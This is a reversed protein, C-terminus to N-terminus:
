RGRKDGPVVESYSAHRKQDAYEKGKERLLRDRDRILEEHCYEQSGPPKTRLKRKFLLKAPSVGTVSHPTNRHMALFSSVAKKFNEGKAVAIKLRKLLTRNQRKVEGNVQPWRPTKKLGQLRPPVYGVHYM